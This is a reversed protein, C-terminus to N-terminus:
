GGPEDEDSNRLCHERQLQPDGHVLALETVDNSARGKLDNDRVGILLSAAGLDNLDGPVPFEVDDILAQENRDAALPAATALEQRVARLADGTIREHCGGSVASAITYARAVRAGGTFSGGVAVVACLTTFARGSGRGAM